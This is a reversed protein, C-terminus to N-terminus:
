PRAASPRRHIPGLLRILPAHLGADNCALVDGGTLTGPSGDSETVVGGAEQVLLRGAAVDWPALGREFFADFRGAAVYALDLAASGFRRVGAVERMIGGLALLYADHGTRSREPIGTAVISLSLDRTTSVRLRQEGLWAGHGREAVFLEGSAVHLVVGSAVEGQVVRALSVAFHPVGHLFNTTGDLPDVYIRSAPGPGDAWEGEEMVLLDEPFARSLEDRLVDQSRLDASSVFDGSAKETVHVDEIRRFDRSLSEAASRAARVMALLAPSPTM